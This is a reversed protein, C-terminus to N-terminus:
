SVSLRELENLVLSYCEASNDASSAFEGLRELERKFIKLEIERTEPDNLRNVDPRLVVDHIFAKEKGIARRLLRGRRQIFERPNTSSALILGLQAQQVDVGEDLCKMAVLVQTAGSEFSQLIRQRESLGDSEPRTGEEGTFYRFVISRRTLAESVGDMQESDMCYIICHKIDRAHEDLFEELVRQKQAAKKAVRARLFIRLEEISQGGVESELGKARIAKRTLEQYEEIEDDTLSIFHPFYAYPTLVSKGTSPDITALAEEIGFRFVVQGFYEDLVKTGEDDFWRQPTASLGLRWNYREDLASRAKPAGLAHMEDAIFIRDPCIKAVRQIENLFAPSGATNHVAIVVVHATVGMALRATADLMDKRWSGNGSGAMVVDAAPFMEEVDCEWQPGLHQYPVGIVTFLREKGEAVRQVASLATKTKGTGTAMELVGRGGAEMWAKIADLQYPRLTFAKRKPRWPTRQERAELLGLDEVNHPALALLGQRVAEPLPVTRSSDSLGEWYRVFSEVDDAVYDAEVDIWGRFVKFQEINGKWGKVTENISGSFSITDGDCDTLLGVKQHYIGADRGQSASPFVVRIELLRERLMWGLARVHDRSIDDALDELSLAASMADALLVDRDQPGGDQLMALDEPQLRPSVVLRMAGGNAILGAIGRAAVALAGSSFFGALRDYSVSESLAPVYFDELVDAGSQGSDYSRRLHLDRLTM